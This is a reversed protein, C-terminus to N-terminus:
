LAVGFKNFCFPESGPYADYHSESNILIFLSQGLIPMMIRSRIKKLIFLSQGLIPMM